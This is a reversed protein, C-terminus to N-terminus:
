EEGFQNLYPLENRKAKILDMNSKLVALENWTGSMFAQRSEESIQIPCSWDECYCTLSELDIRIASDPKSEIRSSLVEANEASVTVTLLGLSRCNGAFIEGFSVGIIAEFGYRKISQPAHETSSGCGFNNGVIMVNASEYQAQNLPYDPNKHGDKDFRLDQFLYDGMKDFTIEKLFRAPIIQDTDIDAGRIPVGTGNVTIIQNM